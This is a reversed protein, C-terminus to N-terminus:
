YLRGSPYNGKLFVDIVVPEDINKLLKKTPASLTFRNENTLDIRTHWVSAMWNIATLLLLVILLSWKNGKFKKALSM